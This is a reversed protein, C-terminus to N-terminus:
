RKVQANKMTEADKASGGRKFQLILLGAGLSRQIAMLGDKATTKKSNVEEFIADVLEKLKHLEPNEGPWPYSVVQAGIWTVQFVNPNNKIYEKANEDTVFSFKLKIPSLITNLAEAKDEAKMKQDNLEKLAQYCPQLAAKEQDDIPLLTRIIHLGIEAQLQNQRQKESLM